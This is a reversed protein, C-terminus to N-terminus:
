MLEYIEVGNTLCFFNDDFEDSTGIIVMLAYNLCHTSKRFISKITATDKASPTPSVTPHTHWDGVYALHQKFQRNIEAQSSTPNPKFFFRGSLDKNTPLSVKCVTVLDDVIPSAFLLGGQEAKRGNQRNEMLLRVCDDTFAVTLGLCPNSFSFM